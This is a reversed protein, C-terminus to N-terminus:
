IRVDLASAAEHIDEPSHHVASIEPVPAFASKAPVPQQGGRQGQGFNGADALSQQHVVVATLPVNQGRLRQELAPLEAALAHVLSAHEVSIETRLQQHQLQTHIEINGLEGMQLGVRLEAGNMRELLHASHLNVAAATPPLGSNQLAAPEAAAHPVPANALASLMARNPEGAATPATHSLAEAALTQTSAPAPSNAPLDKLAPPSDKKSDRTQAASAEAASSSDTRKEPAIRLRDHPDAFTDSQSPKQTAPLNLARAASVAAREPKISPTAEVPPPAPLPAPGSIATHWELANAGGPPSPEAIAGVGYMPASVPDVQLPLSEARQLVSVPRPTDENNNVPSNGPFSREVDYGPWDENKPPATQAGIEQIPRASIASKPEGIAESGSPTNTNVSHSLGRSPRAADLGSGSASPTPAKQVRKGLVAVAAEALPAGKPQTELLQFLPQEPIGFAEPSTSARNPTTIGGWINQKPLAQPNSSPGSPGTKESPNSVAASSRAEVAPAFPSGALNSANVASANVASANVAQAPRAAAFAGALSLTSFVNPQAPLRSAGKGSIPSIPEPSPESDVVPAVIVPPQPSVIPAPASVVVPQSVQTSSQTQQLRNKISQARGARNSAATASSAIKASVRPTTKAPEAALPAAPVDPPLLASQAPLAVEAPQPHPQPQAQAQQAPVGSPQMFPLLLAAFNDPPPQKGALENKPPAASSLMLTPVLDM